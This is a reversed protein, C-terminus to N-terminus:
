SSRTVLVLTKDDDTRCNVAESDLFDALWVSHAADEGQGVGAMGDLVHDFFAVHPEGRAQHIALFEVGDTMLAFAQVCGDIRAVSAYWGPHRATIFTTENAFEGRHPRTALRWPGASEARYVIAGDGVQLFLTGSQGAVAALLTCAFAEVPDDSSTAARVIEERLAELTEAAWLAPDSEGGVPPPSNHVFELFSRCAVRAGEEARAASGAGDCVIAAVTDCDAVVVAHDQCPTASRLHASGAVSAAVYRWGGM